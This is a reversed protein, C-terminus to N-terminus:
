IGKLVGDVSKFLIRNVMKNIRNEVYKSYIATMLTSFEADTLRGSARCDSLNKTLYKLRKYETNHKKDISPPFNKMPIGHLENMKQEYKFM